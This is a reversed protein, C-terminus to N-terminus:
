PGNRYIAFTGDYDVIVLDSSSDGAFFHGAAIFTPFKDGLPTTQAATFDGCGDGLFVDFGAGTSASHWVDAIDAQGDGNFDGVAVSLPPGGTALTQEYVFDGIGGNMWIEIGRDAAGPGYCAVALDLFGQGYFDALAAGTPNTGNDQYHQASFTPWTGAATTQLLVWFVNDSATPGNADAGPRFNSGLIVLDSAPSLTSLVGVAMPGLGSPYPTAGIPNEAFPHGSPDESGQEFVQLYDNGATTALVADPAGAIPLLTILPGTPSSLLDSDVPGWYEQYAPGVPPECAPGPCAVSDTGGDALLSFVYILYQDGSNNVAAVVGDGGPVVNGYAISFANGNGGEDDAPDFGGDGLNYFVLPGGSEEAIALDDIGDGNIDAVWLGLV